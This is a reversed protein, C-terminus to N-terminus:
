DSQFRLMVWSGEGIAGISVELIERREGEQDSRTANFRDLMESCFRCEQILEPDSDLYLKGRLMREKHTAVYGCRGRVVTIACVPVVPSIGSVSDRVEM